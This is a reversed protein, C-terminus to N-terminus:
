GAIKSEAFKKLILFLAVLRCHNELKKEIINNKNDFFNNEHLYSFIGSKLFRETSKENLIYKFILRSIESVVDQLSQVCDAETFLTTKSDM